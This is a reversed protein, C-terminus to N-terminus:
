PELMIATRVIDALEYVRADMEQRTAALDVGPRAHGVENRLRTYVTELIHPKDPRPFTRCESTHDEIFDDVFEQKEKGASGLCLILLLRYLSLYRDVVDEAQMAVRYLDHYMEGHPSLDELDATLAALDGAPVLQSDKGACALPLGAAAVKTVVGDKTEELNESTVLPEQVCLGYRLVLRGLTTRCIVKGSIRVTDASPASAFTVTVEIPSEAPCAVVVKEVWPETTRVALPGFSRFIFGKVEARYTLTGDVTTM